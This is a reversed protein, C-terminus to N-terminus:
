RTLNPPKVYSQGPLPEPGNEVADLWKALDRGRRPPPTPPTDLAWLINIAGLWLAIALLPTAIIILALVM